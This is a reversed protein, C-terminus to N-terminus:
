ATGADPDTGTDLDIREVHGPRPRSRSGDTGGRHAGGSPAASAAAEVFTKVASMLATGAEAVRETVEPREGRLVSAFQCLPCWQCEPGGHGSPPAPFTQRAWDQVVGFLRVAEGVLPSEGELPEDGVAGDGPGDGWDDDLEDSM